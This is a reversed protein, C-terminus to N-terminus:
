PLSPGPHVQGRPDQRIDARAYPPLRLHEPFQPLLHGGQFANGYQTDQLLEEIRWEVHKVVVTPPAPLPEGVPTSIAWQGVFTSEAPFTIVNDDAASAVPRQVDIDKFTRAFFENFTAYDGPPKEYDQWAYEPAYKFSELYKKSEPTDLFAGWEVAFDRLWGSIPSLRAGKVPAIASQLAELDPHNFYFYFQTIRLYVTREHLDVGNWDWVRIEPIWTVLADVYFYFQDLTKIRDLEPVKQASVATIAHEFAATYYNDEILAKLQRTAQQKPEYVEGERPLGLLFPPAQPPLKGAHKSALGAPAPEAASRDLARRLDLASAVRHPSSSNPRGRSNNSMPGSWYCFVACEALRLEHNSM